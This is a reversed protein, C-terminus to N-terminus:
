EGKLCRDKRDLDHVNSDDLSHGKEKLHLHVASDPGSSTAGRHKAMHRHLPQKTEGIYLESCKVTCQVAYM